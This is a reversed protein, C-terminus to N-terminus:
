RLDYVSGVDKESAILRYNREVHKQLQPYRHFLVLAGSPALLFEAGKSRLEELEAIAAADSPPYHAPQGELTVEVHGPSGDGTSWSILTKGLGAVKPVPNPTATIYANGDIVEKNSDSDSRNSGNQSVAISALLRSKNGGQFLKFRYIGKNGIWPAEMSGSAGSAFIQQTDRPTRTPFAWVERSQFRPLEEDPRSMVIVTGTPPLCAALLENIKRALKLETKRRSILPEVIKDYRFGLNTNMTKYFSVLSELRQVNDFKSWAGAKHIRYVGLVEDIYGIKGRQAALLFLPWDGYPLSNYWDPLAGIAGKRLMPTCGAIFCYQWLDEIDSIPKQDASNYLLPVRNEDEYMRLANHFCIVCESHSELFALQLQLKQASTWYDDGDLMAIYPSPANEFEEAFPRNSHENQQALRLRIKGPYRNRYAQVIDRTTDTSCDDLIVIEYEFDTEQMLVSDLAQSIYKEHNYTLLLVTVQM